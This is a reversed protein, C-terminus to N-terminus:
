PSTTESADPEPTGTMTGQWVHDCNQANYRGEIRDSRISGVLSSGCTCGSCSLGANLVGGTTQWQYVGGGCSFIGDCAGDGSWYCGSGGESLDGVLSVITTGPRGQLGVGTLRWRMHPTADELYREYGVANILPDLIVLRGALISVQADHLERPRTACTSADVRLELRGDRLAWRGSSRCAVNWQDKQWTGDPLFRLTVGCNRWTGHLPPVGADSPPLDADSPPLNILSPIADLPVAGDPAVVSAVSEGSCGVAVLVVLVRPALVGLSTTPRSTRHGSMIQM